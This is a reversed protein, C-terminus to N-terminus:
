DPSSNVSAPNLKLQMILGDEIPNQYYNKRSYATQFGNKSYFSQAKYNTERVELWIVEIQKEICNKLFCDLMIQGIGTGQYEPLVAINLIEAENIELLDKLSPSSYHTIILRTFLFGLCQESENKKCCINFSDARKIEDKYDEESWHSSKCERSIKIIESIVSDNIIKLSVTKKLDNAIM